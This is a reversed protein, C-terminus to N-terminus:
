EKHGNQQGGNWKQRGRRLIELVEERNARPAEEQPKKACIPATDRSIAAVVRPPKHNQEDLKITQGPYIGFLVPPIPFPDPLQSPEVQDVLEGQVPAPAGASKIERWLRWVQGRSWYPRMDLDLCETIELVRPLWVERPDNWMQVCAYGKWIKPRRHNAPVCGEGPCYVSDDGLRHTFLGSYTESILRVIELHGAKISLVRVRESRSPESVAKGDDSM